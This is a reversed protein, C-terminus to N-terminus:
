EPHWKWRKIRARWGVCSVHYEGLCGLCLVIGGKHKPERDEKVGRGVSCKLKVEKVLPSNMSTQDSM